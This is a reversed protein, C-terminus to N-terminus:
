IIVKIPWSCLSAPQDTFMSYQNNGPDKKIFCIVVEAFAKLDSFSKHQAESFFKHYIFPHNDRCICVLGISALLSVKVPGSSFLRGGLRSRAM